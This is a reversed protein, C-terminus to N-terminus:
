VCLYLYMIFIIYYVRLFSLIFSIKYLLFSIMLWFCCKLIVLKNSIRMILTFYYNEIFLTKFKTRYYFLLVCVDLLPLGNPNNKSGVYYIKNNKSRFHTTADIVTKFGNGSWKSQLSHSLRSHLIAGGGCRQQMM